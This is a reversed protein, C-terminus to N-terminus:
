NTLFLQVSESQIPFNSIYNLLLLFLLLLFTVFLSSFFMPIEGFRIRIHYYLSQLSTHNYHDNPIIHSPFFQLLYYMKMPFLIFYHQRRRRERHSALLDKVKEDWGCCLCTKHSNENLAYNIHAHANKKIFFFQILLMLWSSSNKPQKM